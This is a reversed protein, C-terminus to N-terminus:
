GMVIDVPLLQCRESLTNPMTTLAVGVLLALTLELRDAECMVLSGNRRGPVESSWNHEKGNHCHRGRQARGLKRGRAASAEGALDRTTNRM